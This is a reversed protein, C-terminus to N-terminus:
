KYTVKNRIKRYANWDDTSVIHIATKKLADREHMLKRLTDNIWPAPKNHARVVRLPAHKDLVELFKNKWLTWAEIVDNKNKIQPWKTSQLDSKFKRQDFHKLNRTVIFKPNNRPIGIKRVAYILNHDSISVPYVGSDIISEDNNTIFLDITCTESTVRTPQNILQLLQYTQM